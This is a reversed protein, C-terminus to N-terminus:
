EEGGEENMPQSQEVILGWEKLFEYERLMWIEERFAVQVQPPHPANATFAPDLLNDEIQEETLQVIKDGAALLKRLDKRKTSDCVIWNALSHFMVQHAEPFDSRMFFPMACRKPGLALLHTWSKTGKQGPIIETPNKRAWILLLATARPSPWLIHGGFGPEFPFLIAAESDASSDTSAPQFVKRLYSLSTELASSAESEFIGSLSTWWFWRQFERLNAPPTDVPQDLFACSTLYLQQDYPLAAPGAVGCESELLAVARRIAVGVRRMADTNEHAQKRVELYPYMRGTDRFGLAYLWTIFFVEDELEVWLTDQFQIRVTEIQQRLDLDPSWVMAHAFHTRDLPTGMGNVRRFVDIVEALDNTVLQHIVIPYTVFAVSLLNIEERWARQKDAPAHERLSQRFKALAHGNLLNPAPLQFPTPAAGKLLTFDAKEVDYAFDWYLDAGLQDAKPTEPSVEAPAHVFAGFLTLLRQLGDLVFTRMQGKPPASLRLTRFNPYAPLELDTRWVLLAGIPVGARVSQLLQIRQEDTWVYPRQFRPLALQGQHFAAFVEPLTRVYPPQARTPPGM